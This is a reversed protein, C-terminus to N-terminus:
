HGQLKLDRAVALFRRIKEVNKIGPADEVGSSVDVASAGSTRVAEAVNDADLGGALMWPRTWRRGHLLSWDFPQANGGPRTAGAPPRADFLLRDAVSEYRGARGLDEPGSIAVAKMVPLASRARLEAVREPPEAGHLQLMDIGAVRVIADILADDADVTLAVRVIGPAVRAALAGATAPALSRPSPPFFVFGVYAAGGAVAADVAEATSLGCIKVAVAKTAAREALRTAAARM